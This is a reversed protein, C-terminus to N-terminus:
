MNTHQKCNAGDGAEVWTVSEGIVGNFNLATCITGNSNKIGWPNTTMSSQCAAQHQSAPDYPLICPPSNAAKRWLTLLTYDNEFAKKGVFYSMFDNNTIM